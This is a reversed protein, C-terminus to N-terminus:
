EVGLKKQRLMFLGAALFMAVFLIIVVPSSTSDESSEASESVDPIGDGDDDPDETLWTSVGLPCHLNDPQGDNDTDRSACPDTPWPDLSDPVEDNDDNTDYVDPGCYVNNDQDFWTEVNCTNAWDNDSDLLTVEFSLSDTSTLGQTDTVELTLVYLGASLDTLNNWEGNLQMMETQGITAKWVIQLDDNSDLDDSVVARVEIPLSEMVRFGDDPIIIQASPAANSIMNIQIVENADFGYEYSQNLLPLGEASALINISTSTFDCFPGGDGGMCYKWVIPAQISSGQFNQTDFFSNVEIDANQSAGNLRIDFIHTSWVIVEGNGPMSTPEVDFLNATAAQIDLSGNLVGDNIVLNNGDSSIAVPSDIDVNTLIMAASEGDTHLDIGKTCSSITSDAISLSSSARGHHSTLGVGSGGCDIQLDTISGATNDLDVAPAGTVIAGDITIERNDSGNISTLTLDSMMFGDLNNVHLDGGNFGSMTGTIGGLDVKESATFDTISVSLGRAWLSNSACSQTVVQQLILTASGQAEICHSASDVLDTSMVQMSGSAANTIRVLPEASSSRSLRANSVFVDAEGEMVILPSGEEMSTGLISATTEANDGIILGGWFGNGTSKITSYGSNFTGEVTITVDESVRLAVGDNVTMTQGQPIILDSSLHYPSWAKELELWETLSGGAITSATFTYDLSSSTNWAKYDTITGWQMTIPMMGTVVPGSSDVLLATVSKSAKGDAGTNVSQGDLFGSVTAGQVPEGKDLVTIELTNIIEFTAGVGVVVQGTVKGSTVMVKCSNDLQVDGLVQLSYLEIDSQCSTWLVDGHISISSTLSDSFDASHSIVDGMLHGNSGEFDGYSDVTLTAGEPLELTTDQLFLQANPPIIVNGGAMHPSGDATPGLVVVTGATLTWDSQPMIPVQMTHSGGQAGTPSSQAGVGAYTAVIKSGAESVPLTDMGGTATGSFGLVTWDADVPNGTLDEFTVAMEWIRNDTGTNLILAQSTGYNLVGDGTVDAYLNNLTSLSWITAESESDIVGGDDHYSADWTRIVASSSDLVLGNDSVRTELLDNVSVMSSSAYLGQKASDLLILDDINLVAEYVSISNAFGTVSVDGGILDCWWANIGTSGTAFQNYPMNVELDTFTHSGQLIDVGMEGDSSINVVVGDLTTASIGSFSMGIRDSIFTSDTITLTGTGSAKLASDTSEITSSDIIYDGSGALAMGIWPADFSGQNSNFAGSLEVDSLTVTGSTRIDIPTEGSNSVYVADSITLNGASWSNVLREGSMDIDSITFGSSDMSVIANTSTGSMGDIDGSVGASISVANGVGSLFELDELDATGGTLTVGAGTNMFGVDNLVLDGSSHIGGSMDSMEGDFIDADGTVRVGDIDVDDAVFHEITASGDVEIGILCDAVALHKAQLLGDVILCSKANSITVNDLAATGLSSITLSDWVGANHSGPGTTQISSMITVNDAILNGDVKMWYDQMDVTAGPKLTLTTGHSVTYNGTMTHNGSIEVDQTTVTDSAIVSTISSLIVIATLVLARIRMIVPSEEDVMFENGELRRRLSLKLRRVCM